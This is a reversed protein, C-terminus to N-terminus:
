AWSRLVRESAQRALMGSMIERTLRSILDATEDATLESDEELLSLNPIFGERLWLELSLEDSFLLIQEAHSCPGDPLDPVDGMGFLATIAMVTGQTPIALSFLPIVDTCEFTLAGNPNVEIHASEYSYIDIVTRHQCRDTIVRFGSGFKENM